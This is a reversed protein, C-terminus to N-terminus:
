IMGFPSHYDYHFESIHISFLMHTHVPMSHIKKNEVRYRSTSLKVRSSFNRM